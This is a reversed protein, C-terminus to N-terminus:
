SADRRATPTGGFSVTTQLHQQQTRSTCEISSEMESNETVGIKNVCTIHRPTETQPLSQEVSSETTENPKEFPKISQRQYDTIVPKETHVLVRAPSRSPTQPKLEITVTDEVKREEPPVYGTLKVAAIRADPKSM